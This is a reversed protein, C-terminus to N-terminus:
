LSGEQKALRALAEAFADDILREAYLEPKSWGAVEFHQMKQAVEANYPRRSRWNLALQAVGDDLEKLKPDALRVAGAAREGNPKILPVLNRRGKIAALVKQGMAFALPSSKHFFKIYWAYDLNYTLFTEGGSAIEPLPFYVAPVMFHQPVRYYYPAPNGVADLTYKMISALEQELM